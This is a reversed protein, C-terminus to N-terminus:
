ELIVKYGPVPSRWLLSEDPLIELPDIQGYFYIQLRFFVHM